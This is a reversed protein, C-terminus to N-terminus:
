APQLTRSDVRLDNWMDGKHTVAFQAFPRPGSELSWEYRVSANWNFYPSEPLREGPTVVYDPNQWANSELKSDNYNGSFSLQLGTFPPDAIQARRYARRADAYKQAEVLVDGFALWAIGLSPAQKLVVRLEAYAADTRGAQRYARALDTRAHAFDPAAAVAKELFCVAASIKQQSLLALGLLRLCNVEGPFAAQIARLQLEAGAADGARLANLAGDYAIRNTASAETM